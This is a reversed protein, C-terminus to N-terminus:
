VKPDELITQTACGLPYLRLAPCDKSETSVVPHSGLRTWQSAFHYNFMTPKKIDQSPLILSM